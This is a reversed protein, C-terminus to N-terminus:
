GTRGLRGNIVDGMVEGSGTGDGIVEVSTVGIDERRSLLVLEGFFIFIVGGVVVVLGAVRGTKHVRGIVEVEVIGEVEAICERM